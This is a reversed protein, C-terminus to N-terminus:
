LKLDDRMEKIDDDNYFSEIFKLLNDGYKVNSTGRPVYEPRIMDIILIFRYKDSFNYSSHMRADDFVLWERNKHNVVWNDCVCACDDPVDIGYHCRLIGNALDGWGKHPQIQKGPLLCSFSATKIDPIGM